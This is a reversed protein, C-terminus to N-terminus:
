SGAEEALRQTAFSTVIFGDVYHRRKRQRWDVLTLSGHIDLFYIFCYGGWGPPDLTGPPPHQPTLIEFTCSIDRVASFISLCFFNQRFFLWFMYGGGWGMRRPPPTLPSFKLTVLSWPKFLIEPICTDQAFGPLGLSPPYFAPVFLLSPRSLSPSLSRSLPDRAFGPIWSTYIYLQYKLWCAM